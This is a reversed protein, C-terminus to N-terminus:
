LGPTSNSVTTVFLSKFVRVHKQNENQHRFKMTDYKTLNSFILAYRIVIGLIKFFKHFFTDRM